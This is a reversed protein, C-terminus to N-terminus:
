AQSDAGRSAGDAPSASFGFYCLVLGVGLPVLGVLYVPEEPAIFFLFATLAVGVATTIVGGMRLGRIKEREQDRRQRDEQDQIFAVLTDASSGSDLMKQYTQHQHFSEREKRRNEAWVVVSIMGFVCIVATVIVVVLTAHM